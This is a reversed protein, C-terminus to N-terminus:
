CSTNRVHLYQTGAFVERRCTSSVGRCMTVVNSRNDVACVFSNKEVTTSQSFFLYDILNMSSTRFERYDSMSDGCVDSVNCVLAHTTNAVSSASPYTRLASTREDNVTHLNGNLSTRARAYAYTHRAHTRAYVYYPACAHAYAERRTRARNTVTATCTRTAPCLLACARRRPRGLRVACVPLTYAM